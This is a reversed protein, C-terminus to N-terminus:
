KQKGGENQVVAGKMGEGEQLWLCCQPAPEWRVTKGETDGVGVGPVTTREIAGTMGWAKRERQVLSPGVHLLPVLSVNCPSPFLTPYVFLDM